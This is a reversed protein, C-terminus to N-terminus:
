YENPCMPDDRVCQGVRVHFFFRPCLLGDRVSNLINGAPVPDGQLLRLGLLGLLALLALAQRVDGGDEGAPDGHLERVRVVAGRVRFIVRVVPTLPSLM